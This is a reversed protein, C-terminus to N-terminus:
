TLETEKFSITGTERGNDDVLLYGYLKRVLFFMGETDYAIFVAERLQGNGQIIVNYRKRNRVPRIISM